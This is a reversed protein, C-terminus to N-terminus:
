LREQLQLCGCLWPLPVAFFEFLGRRSTKVQVKHPDGKSCVDRRLLCLVCFIWLLGVPLVFWHCLWPATSLLSCSSPPGSTLLSAFDMSSLTSALFLSRQNSISFFPASGVADLECCLMAPWVLQSSSALRISCWAPGSFVALTHPRQCHQAQYSLVALWSRLRHLRCRCPAHSASPCSVPFTGERCVASDLLHCFCCSSHRKSVSVLNGVAASTELGNIHGARKWFWARVVSWKTRLMVDNALVTEHGAIIPELNEQARQLRLADRFAM